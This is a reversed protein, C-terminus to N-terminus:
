AHLVIFAICVRLTCVYTWSLVSCSLTYIKFGKGKLLLTGRVLCFSCYLTGYSHMSYEPSTIFTRQTYGQLLLREM